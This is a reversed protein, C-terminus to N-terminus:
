KPEGDEPWPTTGHSRCLTRCWVIHDLIKLSSCGWHCKLAVIKLEM